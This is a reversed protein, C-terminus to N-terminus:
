SYYVRNPDRELKPHIRNTTNRVQKRRSPYGGEGKIKIMAPSFRMRMPTDCCIISTMKHQFVEEERGCVPCIYDYLPM